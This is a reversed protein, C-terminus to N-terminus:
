AAEELLALSASRPLTEGRLTNWTLDLEAVDKRDRLPRGGVTRDVYGISPADEFDALIFAGSAMGEHAGVSAPLVEIRIGPQRAAEILRNTQELMVDRGGVPRRVVMEDIIVWLAPPKERTLIEQRTLRAAMREEIGERTIGFRSSFIARMYGETQLLGPVAMPEFWRLTSAEAEIAAWDQIEAPLVQYTMGEAYEDWLEILAGDSNLEPVAELALVTPRTPARWGTEYSAITSASIHALGALAERSLGARVRYFKMMKGFTRRPSGKPAREQPAM